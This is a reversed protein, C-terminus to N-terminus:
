RMIARYFRAAPSIGAPDIFTYPSSSLNTLSLMDTWNTGALNTCYQIVFNNGLPGSLGLAPYGAWIELTLTPPANVSLVATSSPHIPVHCGSEKELLADGEEPYTDTM